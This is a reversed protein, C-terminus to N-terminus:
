LFFFFRTLFGFPLSFAIAKENRSLFWSKLLKFSILRVNKKTTRGFLALLWFIVFLILLFTMQWVGLIRVCFVVSGCSDLHLLVYIMAM